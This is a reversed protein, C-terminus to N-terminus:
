FPRQDQNLMETVKSQWPTEQSTEIFHNKRKGNWLEQRTFVRKCDVTKGKLRIQGNQSLAMELSDESEFIVYGFGRSTTQDGLYMIRVSEVPGFSEFVSYLEDESLRLPLGGVFMKKRKEDENREQIESNKMTSLVKVQKGGIVFEGDVLSDATKKKQFSM